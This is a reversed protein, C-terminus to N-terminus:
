NLGSVTFVESAIYVAALMQSPQRTSALPRMANALSSLGSIECRRIIAALADPQGHPYAIWDAILDICDNALEALADQAIAEPKKTPLVKDKFRM